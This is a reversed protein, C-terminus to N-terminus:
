IERGLAWRTHETPNFKTKSYIERKQSVLKPHCVGRGVASPRDCNFNFLKWFEPSKSVFSIWDISELLDSRCWRGRRHLVLLVGIYEACMALYCFYLVRCYLYMIIRLVVYSLVYPDTEAPRPFHGNRTMNKWFTSGEHSWVQYSLSSKEISGPWNPRPFGLFM